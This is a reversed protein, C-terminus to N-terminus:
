AAKAVEKMVYSGEDRVIAFIVMLLKRSVAVLAPVKHLGNRLLRQYYEHMIGKKRSTNLAALYLINRLRSRGRKSIKRKGIHAGSSVEYLNLGSFKMVEGQTSFSTFDGIEGIIGAITICGIGPISRIGQTCPLLAVIHEIRSEAAKILAEIMELQMAAHAMDMMIGNLGERIGVSKGAREVLQEAHLRGLKGRSARHIAEGLSQGDTNWILGTAIYERVLMRGTAGRLSKIVTMFEPFVIFILQRLYNILSVREDIHRDRLNMLRRLEAADGKPVFASLTHGLKMIDAIVRPDKKDTKLPSNDNVEKLKKTHMPNVQVLSVGKEMLHHVLPEGYPGTPEYGVVERTCRFRKKASSVSDLFFKYGECTHDFVATRTENGYMDTCYFTNKRMGIDIAVILTGERVLKRKGRKM